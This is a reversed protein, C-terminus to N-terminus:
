LNLVTVVLNCYITLVYKWYLIIIIWKKKIFKYNWNMVRPWWFRHLAEIVTEHCDFTESIDVKLNYSPSNPILTLPYLINELQRHSVTIGYLHLRISFNICTTFLFYSKSGGFAFTCTFLTLLDFPVVDIYWWTFCIYVPLKIYEVVSWAVLFLSSIKLTIPICFWFLFM